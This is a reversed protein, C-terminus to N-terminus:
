PLIAEGCASLAGAAYEERCAHRQVKGSSTKFVGGPDLLVVDDLRLDHAEAVSTRIANQIETRSSASSRWPRQVEAVVVVREPWGGGDVAFAACGGWRVAPHCQEVTLEIDQPYHNRGDVIILDKLRGTVFLEGDDALFGLDGTRLYPGDGDARVARFTQRTEDPRGWYGQAVSPGAVWIEGVRGAPLRAASAPDVIVVRLGPAGQGSSVLTRSGPVVRDKELAGTDVARRVAGNGRRSGTVMLTSEALGYCPYFAERRFGCRAFAEAFRDLTEALVPEAGNYAVEWTSLDLSARQEPTIRRVCLDYAFNPGGSVVARTRSIAALWRYPRQLFALPSLFTGRLGSYVVQLLSGILGMDHYPPLWSVGPLGPSLGIMQQMARLNHLLNAHTLAVGRPLNTSGSTYQLFALSEAGIAPPHWRSGEDDPIRDTAIWPLAGLGLNPGGHTGASEALRSLTLFAVPSCDSAVAQLRPQPRDMRMPPYVPVALAGAYLCGFFAQIYELGPPYLLLVREGPAGLAQLRAAIARARRDLGDPSLSIEDEEGDRLFTYLAIGRLERARAQLLEVLTSVPAQLSSATM